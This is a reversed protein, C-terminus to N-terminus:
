AQVLRFQAAIRDRVALHTLFVEIERAVIDKPIISAVFCFLASLGIWTTQGTRFGYHRLRIEGRVQDLLKPASASSQEESM